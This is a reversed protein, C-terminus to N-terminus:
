IGLLERLIARYDISKGGSLTPLEYILPVAKKARIENLEHRIEAASEESVIILGVDPDAVLKRVVNLLDKSTEVEIAEVGALKFGLTFSRSGVAVVRM